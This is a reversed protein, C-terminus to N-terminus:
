HLPVQPSTTNTPPAPKPVTPESMIGSLFKSIVHSVNLMKADLLVPNGHADSTIKHTDHCRFCHPYNGDDQTFSEMATSSLRGEGALLAGPDDTSQKSGIDFGKDLTFNKTDDIWVAGVLQYFQRRDDSHNGARSFLTSMGANINVVAADEAPDQPGHGDSKSGPFLRIIPTSFTAGGKDFRQTIPNFHAAYVSDDPLLNVEAYHTGAACLPYQRACVIPDGVVSSPNSPAAPANDRLGKDDIHEFTSWIMEPHGQLSFVVHLALLAVTVSRTKNTPVVRGDVVALMPVRASTTFYNSPLQAGSVIRWASKLEIVGPPFELDDPIHELDRIKRLHHQALFTQYAQNVHIAYFVPQGSSDVLLGQLKAQNIDSPTLSQNPREVSRPALGLIRASEHAFMPALGHGFLREITAFKLFRPSGHRDPQTVYLFRQWAALYFPCDGGHEAHSKPRDTAAVPTAPLWSAPTHVAPPACDDEGASALTPTLAGILALAYLTSRM